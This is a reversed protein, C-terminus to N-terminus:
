PAPRKTSKTFTFGVTDTQLMKKILLRVFIYGACISHFADASIAGFYHKKTNCM